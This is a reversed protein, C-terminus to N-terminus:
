NAHPDNERAIAAPTSGVIQKLWRTMHSQDVYGSEYAVQALSKGLRLASVAKQARQIQLWYNHTMGTTRMFHRQLTRPSMYPTHGALVAAVAENVLLQERKVLAAVFDDATEMTPLEIKHQRNWWVRRSDAASLLRATNLLDAASRDPSFTSAALSVSLIEDGAQLAVRVPGTTSGTLYATTAGVSRHVILGWSGDPVVIFTADGAARM